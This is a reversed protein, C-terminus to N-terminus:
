PSWNYDPFERPLLGRYEVGRWKEPSIIDGTKANRMSEPPTTVVAALEKGSTGPKSSFSVAIRYRGDEGKIGYEKMIDKPINVRGDKGVTAVKDGFSVKAGAQKATYTGFPRLGARGDSRAVAIFSAM